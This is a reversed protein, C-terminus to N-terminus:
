TPFIRLPALSASRGTWCGFVKSSTTLRFVALASPSVTGGAIRARAVSTMSYRLRIATSPRCRGMRYQASIPRLPHIGSRRRSGSPRSPQVTELGEREGRYRLPEISATHFTKVRVFVLLRIAGPVTYRLDERYRQGPAVTYQGIIPLLRGKVHGRGLAYRARM